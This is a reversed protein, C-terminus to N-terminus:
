TVSDRDRYRNGSSDSLGPTPTLRASQTQWDKLDWSSVTVSFIFLFSAARPAAAINEHYGQASGGLAGSADPTWRLARESYRETSRRPAESALGMAPNQWGVHM